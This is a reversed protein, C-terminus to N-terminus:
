HNNTQTKRKVQERKEKLERMLQPLREWGIGREEPQGYADPSLYYGREREAKNEEVKFPHKLMVADSRVGTVQWSVEVRPASTRITFRNGKIKAAVIAQAFTGVVTLQYRFDRNIAELWDPLTIVAEGSDNTTINGSYINLV